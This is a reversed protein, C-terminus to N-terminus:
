QPPAESSGETPKEKGFTPTKIPAPKETAPKDGSAPKDGGPKAAPKEATAPKDTAPKAAKDGTAPKDTAPKAGPKEATAPKETAPKASAPKDGGSKEAGAPKEGPAKEAAAKEATPATEGASKEAAAEAPKEGEKKTAASPKKPKPKPKAAVEAKPAAELTMALALVDKDGKPEFADTASISRSQSVFGSRKVELAHSKSWDLKHVTYPTKGVRKGDIMVDAGPPTTAVEVVKENPVLAADLKDGSKPKLKVKWERFGKMALKVEYVKKGDLGTLSTPTPADIAKGDVIVTAGPPDSTIPVALGPAKEAAAPESPKATNIAEAAAATPKEGLAVAAAGSPETPKAAEGEAPKPEEPPAPAAAAAPQPAQVAPKTEGGGLISAKNRFVTYGGVACVLGLGIYLPANSRKKAVPREGSRPGGGVAVVAPPPVPMTEVSEAPKVMDTRQSDRRRNRVIQKREAPREDPSAEPPAASEPQEELKTEVKPEAKEELKAEVKLEPKPEIKGVVKPEPKADIKGIPKPPMPPVITPTFPRAMPKSDFKADPKAAPKAEPKAELKAAIKMDPKIAKAEEAADLKEEIQWDEPKVIEAVQRGIPEHTRVVEPAIEVKAVPPRVIEIEGSREVASGQVALKLEEVSAKRTLEPESFANSDEQARTRDALSQVLENQMVRTSENGFEDGPTELGPVAGPLPTFQAKSDGGGFDNHGKAVQLTGSASASARVGADFRSELQADGRKQKEALIKDLVKQSDIALKDFRVGMGPAVGTRAPDHERIWVVTGDGSILQTADQLQFEFRLQTGVPLPEKTRIFIGGRSVDVSYREIFQDLNSSKFKIKLTIPTRM